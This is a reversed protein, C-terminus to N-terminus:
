AQAGKMDLLDDYDAPNPEELRIDEILERREPTLPIPSPLRRRRREQDILNVVYASDFTQYEVARRLALAVETKGYLRILGLVRRLHVIPKVPVSLLGRRFVRAAEGLTDFEIEIQRARTRKRLALAARQHEPQILLCRKEYSRRHSAIEVGRHLVRLWRDDVRLIVAKRAFEPRVSYRNTDFRVRAHPTVVTPIIDDTDYPISPLPRLLDREKEFRDVPRENTTAHKRINAVHERWYVALKQYGEFYELEEDRGKLANHKVYRVGGEVVGKTEPDAKECAIPKLRHYGCFAAFEPQFRANRGSGEAVATKFNDVIVKEVVGGFFKLANVFCRYFHAKSQSLTFEIYILRSFCLVAVLVSVKRRCQGVAVSGCSGWDVQMAEAPAYDVEQYIRGRAPRIARLYDRVLSIEGPYGAKAIEELVRVGSLDPYKAILADVHSKYPDLISPRRARKLPPTEPHM